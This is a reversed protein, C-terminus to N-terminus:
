NVLLRKLATNFRNTFQLYICYNSDAMGTYMLVPYNSFSDKQNNYLLLFSPFYKWLTNANSTKNNSFFNVDKYKKMHLYFILQMLIVEQNGM